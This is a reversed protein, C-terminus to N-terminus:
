TPMRVTIVRMWNKCNLISKEMRYRRSSLLFKKVNYLLRGKESRSGWFGTGDKDM